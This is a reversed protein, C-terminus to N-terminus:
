AVQAKVFTETIRVPKEILNGCWDSTAHQLHQTFTDVSIKNNCDSPTYVEMLTHPTDAQSSLSLDAREMLTQSVGLEEAKRALQLCHKVVAAKHATSVKFYVYVQWAPDLAKASIHPMVTSGDPRDTM